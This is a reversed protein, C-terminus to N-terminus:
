IVQNWKKIIRNVYYTQIKKSNQVSLKLRLTPSACLKKLCEAYAEEDYNPVIQEDDNGLIERSGTQFDTLLVPLSYNMAELLVMPFAEFRSTMSFLGAKKYYKDIDKTYKKISIFSEMSNDKIIENLITHESGEGIITLTWGNKHINSLTFANILLSFNKQYELRGIALINKSETNYLSNIPYIFNPICYASIGDLSFKAKDTETLCVVKVNSKKYLLKRIRNRLGKHYDYEIHESAIIKIDRFFSLIIVMINLDFSFSFITDNEKFLNRIAKFYKARHFIKKTIGKPPFDGINLSIVNLDEYGKFAVDTTGPVYITIDGPLERALQVIVKETGATRHIGNTIFNLSM